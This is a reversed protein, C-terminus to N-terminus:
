RDLNHYERNPEMGVGGAVRNTMNFFSTVHVVDWIDRETFGVNRLRDRSTEDVLEPHETMLTSFDLMARHRQSLKASRFNSILREGFEPDGSLERVAQGHAVMCYFCHNISSVVAAIMERELKSLGSEGLMLKNYFNSFARLMEEDFAYAQLVNPIFGIKEKCLDFYNRTEEEMQDPKPIEIDLSMIKKM